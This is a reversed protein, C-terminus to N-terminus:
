WLTVHVPFSLATPASCPMLEGLNHTDSLCRPGPSGPVTTMAVLAQAELGRSACHGATVAMGGVMWVNPWLLYLCLVRPHTSSGGLRKYARQGCPQRLPKLPCLGRGTLHEVAM